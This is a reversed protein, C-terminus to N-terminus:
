INKNEVITYYKSIKDNTFTRYTYMYLEKRILLYDGITIEDYEGSTKLFELFTLNKFKDKNQIESISLIRLQHHWQKRKVFVYKHNDIEFIILIDGLVPLRTTNHTELVQVLNSITKESYDDIKLAIAKNKNINNKLLLQEM